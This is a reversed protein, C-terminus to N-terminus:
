ECEAVKWALLIFTFSYQKRKKPYETAEQIIRWLFFMKLEEGSVSRDRFSRLTFCPGSTSFFVFAYLSKTLFNSLIPVAQLFRPASSLVM